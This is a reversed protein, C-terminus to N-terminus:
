FHYKKANKQAKKTSKQANKRKKTDIREVIEANEATLLFDILCAPETLFVRLVTVKQTKKTNKPYKKACKQANKRM